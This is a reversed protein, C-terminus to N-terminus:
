DGFMELLKAAEDEVENELYMQFELEEEATVADALEEDISTYLGADLGEAKAKEMDELKKIYSEILDGLGLENAVLNHNYAKLDKLTFDIKDQPYDDPNPLQPIIGGERECLAVLEGISSLVDTNNEKNQADTFKASKRLSDYTAALAKHGNMDGVALAENMKVYVQCIQKVVSKRDVNLEYENEYEIYMEEMQLWQSPKYFMGWKTRLYHVEDETLQELIKDENDDKSPAFDIFGNADQEDAIRSIPNLTDFQAQSIEGADLQQQLRNLEERAEPSQLALRAAIAENEKEAQFQLRETDAYTYDKFQNMKMQRLYKGIVGASSVVGKKEMERNYIKVWEEHIYPVDFKELIWEFTKRDKNDIFMTLCDKCLPERTGDKRMFFEKAATKERGCKTCVLKESYDVAM